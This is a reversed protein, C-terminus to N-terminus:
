ASTSYDRWCAALALPDAPGHHALIRYRLRLPQGPLLVLPARQLLCANIKHMGKYCWWAGPHGFNEPHDFVAVGARHEHWTRSPLGDPNFVFSVWPSTPNADKVESPIPGEATAFEPLSGRACRVSLGGYGGWRMERECTVPERAAEFSLDWDFILARQTPRWQWHITRKEHLLPTGVEDAWDIHHLFGTKTTEISRHVPGGHPQDSPQEWVNRGNLYKWSFFIGEHWPHDGPARMTLTAGGPITVPHFHPHFDYGDYTYAWLLHGEHHAELTRAPRHLLSTASM